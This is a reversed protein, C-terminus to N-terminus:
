ELEEYKKRLAMREKALETLRANGNVAFYEEMLCLFEEESAKLEAEIKLKLEADEHLKEENLMNQENVIEENM